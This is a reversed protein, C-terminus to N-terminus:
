YAETVQNVISERGGRLVHATTGTKVLVMTVHATMKARSAVVNM